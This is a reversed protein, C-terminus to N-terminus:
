KQNWNLGFSTTEWGLDAEAMGLNGGRVLATDSEAPIDCTIFNCLSFPGNCQREYM